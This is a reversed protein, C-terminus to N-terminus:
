RVLELSCLEEQSTLLDKALDLFEGCKTSGSSTNGCKCASDKDQVLNIWDMGGGDSTM